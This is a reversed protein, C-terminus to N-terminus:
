KKLPDSGRNVRVKINPTEYGYPDSGKNFNMFEEKYLNSDNIELISFIDNKNLWKPCPELGLYARYSSYQYQTLNKVLSLPNLHIYRTLHSLYIDDEVLISKFRGRFLPGDREMFKNFKQTYLGNIHQMFKGLNAKPTKVLLHYHNPMLCYSYIIVEFKECAEELIKLFIEYSKKNSFIIKKELGRNMVHHCANEHERRLPRPM